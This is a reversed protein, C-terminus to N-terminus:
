GLVGAIMGPWLGPVQRAQGDPTARVLRRRCSIAAMLAFAPAMPLLGLGMFILAAFAVPILPAFLLAYCLSVGIAIGNIAGALPLHRPTPRRSVLWALLNAVPVTAVLVVHLLSPIPDFLSTTCMRTMLEIVLTTAPLIVGFLVLWAQGAVSQRPRVAIMGAGGRSTRSGAAASDASAGGPVFLDSTGVGRAHISM